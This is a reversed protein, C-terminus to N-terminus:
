EVVKGVESLHIKKIEKVLFVDKYLCLRNKNFM